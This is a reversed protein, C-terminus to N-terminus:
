ASGERRARVLGAFQLHAAELEDVEDISVGDEAYIDQEMEGIRKGLELVQGQISLITAELRAFREETTM